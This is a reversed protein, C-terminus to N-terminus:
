CSDEQWAKLCSPKPTQGCILLNHTRTGGLVLVQKSQSKFVIFVLLLMVFAVYYLIQWM